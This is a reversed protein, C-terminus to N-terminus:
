FGIDKPRDYLPITDANIFVRGEEDYDLEALLEEPNKVENIPFGYPVSLLKKRMTFGMKQKLELIDDDDMLSGMKSYSDGLGVWSEPDFSERFAPVLLNVENAQVGSVLSIGLRSIERISAGFTDRCSYILSRNPRDGEKLAGESAAGNTPSYGVLTSPIKMQAAYSAQYIALADAIPKPSVSELQKLDIKGTGTTDIIQTITALASSIQKGTIAKPNSVSAMLITHPVGYLEAVYYILDYLRSAGEFASISGPSYYSDGFPNNGLDQNFIFPTLLVENIPQLEEGLVNLDKDLRTIKGRTFLLYTSPVNTTGSAWREVALGIRLKGTNSSYFGTAERGTYVTYVVSPEGLSKVGRRTSVFSCSGIIANLIAGRSVQYGNNEYLFRTAGFEPPYFADFTLSSLLYDTAARNWDLGSRVANRTGDLVQKDIAVGIPEVHYTGDYLSRNTTHYTQIDSSLLREKLRVAEDFLGKPLKTPM